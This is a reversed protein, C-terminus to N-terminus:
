DIISKVENARSRIQSGTQALENLSKKNSANSVLKQMGKTADTQQYSYIGAGALAAFTTVGKLTDKLADKESQRKQENLLDILAM